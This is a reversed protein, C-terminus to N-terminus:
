STRTEANGTPDKKYAGQVGFLQTLYVGTSSSAGAAVGLGMVDFDGLLNKRHGESQIWSNVAARACKEGSGHNIAVNEAAARSFFPYSAFREHAGEHGFPVEARLMRQSHVRAVNSVGQSWRLPPKGHMERYANTFRLVAPGIASPDNSPDFKADAARDREDLKRLDTGGRVERERTGESPDYVRWSGDAERIRAASPHAGGRQLQAQQAQRNKHAERAAQLYDRLQEQQQQEKVAGPDRRRKFDFAGGGTTRKERQSGGFDRDEGKGRNLSSAAGTTGQTGKQLSQHGQTEGNAEGDGGGEVSIGTDGEGGVVRESGTSMDELLSKALWLRPYATEVSPHVSFVGAKEAFGMAKLARVPRTDGGVAAQFKPNSARISQFRSIDPNEVVNTAVQLLLDICAKRQSSPLEMLDWLSSTILAVTKDSMEAGTEDAVSGEGEEEQEGAQLLVSPPESSVVGGKSESTATAARGVVYGPGSGSFPTVTPCQRESQSGTQESSESQGMIILHM